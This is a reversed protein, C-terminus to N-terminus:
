PLVIGKTALFMKFANYIVPAGTTIGAVAIDGAKDKIYDRLPHQSDIQNQILRLIEEEATVGDEGTAFINKLIDLQQEDFELQKKQASLQEKLLDIYDNQNDVVQQM